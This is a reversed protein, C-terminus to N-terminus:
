EDSWIPNKELSEKIVFDRPNGIYLSNKPLDKDLLLSGAAIKCNKEVFCNGLISSGPHLSVYEKLTPYINKNSGVNCQQYVILYDSYKARGLVTGLPHVFLFIKPLEIEYYADISHLYKNLQFIKTCLNLDVNSRYLTNALIYLFMAYQDGHLHNFVVEQGQKFYRNNIKSFCYEVRQMAFDFHGKIEERDVIKDDPLFTEIQNSVYDVLDDKSLTVRM